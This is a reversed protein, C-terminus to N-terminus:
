PKLLRRLDLNFGEVPNGASITREFGELIETPKDSRFIYIRQNRPDILWALVAGNKRWVEMKELLQEASDTKSTVEIVFEPCIPAFSDKQSQTLKNWRVSSIWAADPSFVSRDPLTFGSSSDFTIGKENEVNWNGLQRLVEGSHSGSWSTSPSMISIELNSNREIRLDKNGQCFWFFEEDSFRGSIGDKLVVADM